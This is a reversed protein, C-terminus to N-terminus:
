VKELKQLNSLINQYLTFDQIIATSEPNLNKQNIDISLLGRIQPFREISNEFYMQNHIFCNRSPSINWGPGGSKRDRRYVTFDRVLENGLNSRLIHEGYTVGWKKPGPKSGIYDHTSIITYLKKACRFCPM